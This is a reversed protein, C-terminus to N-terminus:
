NENQAIIDKIAKIVAEHSSYKPKWGLELLKNVNYRFKPVDGEWGKNGIGYKIKANNNSHKVVQEAIYKVTVGDDMNGINFLNLKERSKNNIFLMANVLDSIHLYAKQQTGNGLVELEEPEDKLKNLFDFIVGHTAPTGIVNPFRFIYARELFLETAASIIAESALKMAGYNSIPLLPGINEKLEIDGLDGYIASTSSFLFENIKYKKAIEILNYTTKFTNDLDVKPDSIGAAIDSNAAFHWIQSFQIGKTFLESLLEDLKEFDVIDLQYFHFRSNEHFYKINNFSGRSLDDLGYINVDNELLCEILNSAVFGACGSVLINKSIM